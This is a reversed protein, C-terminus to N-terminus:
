DEMISGAECLFCFCLVLQQAVVQAAVAGALSAVNSLKMHDITHSHTHLSQTHM